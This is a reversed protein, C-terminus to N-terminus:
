FILKDKIPTEGNLVGVLMDMGEELNPKTSCGKMFLDTMSLRGSRNSTSGRLYWTSKPALFRTVGYWEGNSMLLLIGEVKTTSKLEKTRVISIMIKIIKTHNVSHQIAHRKL